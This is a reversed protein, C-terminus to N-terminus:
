GAGPGRQALSRTARRHAARHELQTEAIEGALALNAAIKRVVDQEIAAVKQKLAALHVAVATAERRVADRDITLTAIEKNQANEQEHAAALSDDLYKQDRQAAEYQDAFLSRQLYGNEFIAEYDRLQRVYKGSKKDVRDEPDGPAAAQGDKEYEAVSNAPLLEKLEQRSLGSLPEHKDVPMVEYMTWRGKGTSKALRQLEGANLSRTPTLGVTRTKDDVDTVKFEGLYRGGKEVDEEEVAHLTMNPTIGNPIPEDTKLVVGGTAPNVKSPECNTWVRGREILTAFLERKAAETGLNGNPLKELEVM